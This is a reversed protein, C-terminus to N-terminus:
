PTGISCATLPVNSNRRVAYTAFVGYNKAMEAQGVYNCAFEAVGDVAALAAFQESAYVGGKPAVPEIRAARSVHAGVFNQRGTVPDVCEFVPGAHLGIRLSMDERLGFDTWKQAAIEDCLDLALLGTDRVNELVFFLGDGWTNRMLVSKGHRDAVKGALGLFHEVFKLVQGEGLKSFGVADAFLLGFIAHQLPGKAKTSSSTADRSEAIALGPSRARLIEVTDVIEVDM